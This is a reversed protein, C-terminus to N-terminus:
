LINNIQFSIMAFFLDLSVYIYLVNSLFSNLIMESDKHTEACNM